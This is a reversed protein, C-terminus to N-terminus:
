ADIPVLEYYDEPTQPGDLLLGESSFMEVTVGDIQFLVSDISDFQCLTYVVEALRATVSFTGGGDDFEGSFSATAVGDAVSLSQLQTGSPINTSLLPWTDLEDATPGALLQELAATAIAPTYSVTREVRLSRDGGYTFYLYVSLNAPTEGEDADGEATDTEGGTDGEASETTTESATGTAAGEGTGATDDSCGCGALLAATLALVVVLALPLLHHPGPSRKM